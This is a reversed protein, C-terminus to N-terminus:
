RHLLAPPGRGAAPVLRGTRVGAFAGDFSRGGGRLALAAAAGLLV